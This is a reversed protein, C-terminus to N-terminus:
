SGIRHEGDEPRPMWAKWPAPIKDALAWTAPAVRIFRRDRTLESVLFCRTTPRRSAISRYLEAETLVRGCEALTHAAADAVTRTELESWSALGWLGTRGVHVFRPDAGLQTSIAQYPKGSTGAPPVFGATKALDHYHMPKGHDRLIREFRDARRKLHSLRGRYRGMGATPDLGPVSNLLALLEAENPSNRGFKARLLHDLESLRYGEAPSLALLREIERLAARFVKAHKTQPVMLPRTPKNKLRVSRFGVLELLLREESRLDKAGLGFAGTLTQHWQWLSFAQAETRAAANDSERATAAGAHVRNAPARLLRTWESESFRMNGANELIAALAHLPQVLEERFRFRCNRYDNCWIARRLMKIIREEEARVYEKTAGIRKGIQQLTLPPSGAMLLRSQLILLGTEGHEIEVATTIQRVLERKLLEGTHLPSVNTPLVPFGRATALAPWDIDRQTTVATVLAELADIVDCASLFSSRPMPIGAQSGEVLDSLLRIGARELINITRVRLHLVGVAQNMARASLGALRPSAFYIATATAAKLPPQTRRFEDWAAFGGRATLASLRELTGRVREERRVDWHSRRREPTEYAAILDGITDHQEYIWGPHRGEFRLHGVALNAIQQDLEIRVLCQCSVSGYILAAFSYLLLGM